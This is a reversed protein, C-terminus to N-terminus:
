LKEFNSTTNQIYIEKKLFNNIFYNNGPNIITREGTGLYVTSINVWYMNILPSDTRTKEM